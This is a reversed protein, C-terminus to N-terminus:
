WLRLFASLFSKNCCTDYRIRQPKFIVLYILCAHSRSYTSTTRLNRLTWISPILLLIHTYLSPLSARKHLLKRPLRTSFCPCLLLLSPSSCEVACTRPPAGPSFTILKGFPSLRLIQWSKFIFCPTFISKMPLTCLHFQWCSVETISLGPHPTLAPTTVYRGEGWYAATPHSFTCSAAAKFKHRPICHEKRKSKKKWHPM